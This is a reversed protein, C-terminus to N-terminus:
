VVSKRDRGEEEEKPVMTTVDDHVHIIIPLGAKEAELIWFGLLDRCMSQVINETISGGWLKGYKWRISSDGRQVSCHPYRLERGSPLRLFVMSGKSYFILPGVTRIEGSYKAVVKFAKEVDAWFKPIMPYMRRYLNIGQKCFALDIEGSEVKKALSPTQRIYVYNRAAGMGYGAGLVYVKGFDRGMKLMAAVPEPDFGMPKRVTRGLLSSAFESYM